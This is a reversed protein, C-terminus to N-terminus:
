VIICRIGVMVVVRSRVSSNCWVMVVVEKERVEDKRLADDVM